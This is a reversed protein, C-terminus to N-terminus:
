SLVPPSTKPAFLIPKRIWVALAPARAHSRHFWRQPTDTLLAFIVPAGPLASSECGDEHAGNTPASATPVAVGGSDTSMEVVSGHEACWVHVTQVHHIQASTVGVLWLMAAILLSFAARRRAATLPLPM